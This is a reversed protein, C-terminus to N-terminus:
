SVIEVIKDYKKKMPVLLAALIPAARDLNEESDNQDAKTLQEDLYNLLDEVIDDSLEEEGKLKRRHIINNPLLVLCEDGSVVRLWWLDICLM